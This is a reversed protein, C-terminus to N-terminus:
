CVMSSLNSSRLWSSRCSYAHNGDTPDLESNPIRFQAHRGDTPDFRGLMEASSPRRVMSNDLIPTNLWHLNM